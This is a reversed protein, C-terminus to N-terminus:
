QLGPPRYGPSLSSEPAASAPSLSLYPYIQEFRTRLIDSSVTSAIYDAPITYLILPRSLNFFSQLVLLYFSFSAKVITLMGSYFAPANIACLAVTQKFRSSMLRNFKVPQSASLRQYDIDALSTWIEFTHSLGQETFLFPPLPDPIKANILNDKPKM